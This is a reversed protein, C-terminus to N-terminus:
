ANHQAYRAGQSNLAKSGSYAGRHTDSPLVLSNSFDFSTPIGGDNM